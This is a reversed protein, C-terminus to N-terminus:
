IRFMGGEDLRTIFTNHTIYKHTLLVFLPLAVNIIYLHHFLLARARYISLNPKCLNMFRTSDSTPPLNDIVYYIIHSLLLLVAQEIEIGYGYRHVQMHQVHAREREEEWEWEDEANEKGRGRYRCDGKAIDDFALLLLSTIRMDKIKLMAEALFALAPTQRRDERNDTWWRVAKEGINEDIIEARRETSLNEYTLTLAGIVFPYREGKECAFLDNKAVYWRQKSKKPM